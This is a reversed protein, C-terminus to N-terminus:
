RVETRHFATFLWQAATQSRGPMPAMHHDVARGGQLAHVNPFVNLVMNRQFKHDESDPGRRISRRCDMRGGCCCSPSHMPRNSFATILPVRLPSVVEKYRWDLVTSSRVVPIPAAAM